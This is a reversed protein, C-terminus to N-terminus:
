ISKLPQIKRLEPHMLSPFDGHMAISKAPLYIKIGNKNMRQTLQQGVGSSILPNHIFRNPNVENVNYGIREFLERNCFFGCDTFGVQYTEGNIKLPKRLNWCNLRGDNILNYAYPYHGFNIHNKIIREFDISHLDTPMLIYLDAEEEKIRGLAYNWLSWFKPKGGHEFQIFNSNDLKYDSGDDLIKYVIEYTPHSVSFAAIEQLLNELPERRQYSFLTINIKM